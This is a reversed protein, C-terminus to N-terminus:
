CQLSVGLAKTALSSAGALGTPAASCLSAAIKTRLRLIWAFILILLDCGEAAGVGCGLSGITLWQKLSLRSFAQAILIAEGVPLLGTALLSDEFARSAKKVVVITIRIDAAVRGAAGVGDARGTSQM